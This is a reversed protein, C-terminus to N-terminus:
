VLPLQRSELRQLLARSIDAQVITGGHVFAQRGHPPDATHGIAAGILFSCRLTAGSKQLCYRAFLQTGYEMKFLMLLRFWAATM